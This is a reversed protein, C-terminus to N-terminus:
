VGGLENYQQWFDTELIELAPTPIKKTKMFVSGINRRRRMFWAIQWGSLGSVRFNNVFVLVNKHKHSKLRM